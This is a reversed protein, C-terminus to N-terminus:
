CGGVMGAGAPVENAAPAAPAGAGAQSFADSQSGAQSVAGGTIKGSLSKLEYTQFASLLILVVLVGALIQGTNM